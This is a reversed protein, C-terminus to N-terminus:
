FKMKKKSTNKSCWHSELIGFLLKAGLGALTYGVPMELVRVSGSVLHYLAICRLGRRCDCIHSNRWFTSWAEMFLFVPTHKDILVNHPTEFCGGSPYKTFVLILGMELPPNTQADQKSFIIYRGGLSSIVLNVRRELYQRDGCKRSKLLSYLKSCVFFFVEFIQYASTTTVHEECLRIM